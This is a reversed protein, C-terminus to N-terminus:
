RSWCLQEELRSGGEGRVDRRRLGRAGRNRAAPVRPSGERLPRKHHVLTLIEELPPPILTHRAIFHNLRRRQPDLRKSARSLIKYVKRETQMTQSNQEPRPPRFNTSDKKRGFDALINCLFSALYGLALAFSAPRAPGATTEKMTPPPPPQYSSYGNEPPGRHKFYAPPSKM